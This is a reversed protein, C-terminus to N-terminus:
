DWASLNGKLKGDGARSVFCYYLTDGAAWVEASAPYASQVQLDAYKAARKLDVVKPSSCRSSLRDLIASGGPYDATAADEGESVLNGRATLQGGHRDSCEVVTFEEEWPSSFPSLCEGGLLEDFRHVGPEVPGRALPTATPTPTPTPSPSSSTPLPAPVGSGGVGATGTIRTGVFFLLALFALAIVM